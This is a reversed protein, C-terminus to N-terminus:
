TGVSNTKDLVHKLSIHMKVKEFKYSNNEKNIYNENQNDKTQVYDYVMFTCLQKCLLFVFNVCKKLQYDSHISVMSDTTGNLCM